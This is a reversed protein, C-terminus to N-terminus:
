QPEHMEIRCGLLRRDASARDLDAPVFGDRVTIDLPALRTDVDPEPVTPVSARRSAGASLEFSESRGAMDLTVRNAIPGCTVMIEMSGVDAPTAYTV